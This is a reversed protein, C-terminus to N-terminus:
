NLKRFGDMFYVSNHSWEGLGYVKAGSTVIVSISNAGFMPPVIAERDVTYVHRRDIKPADPYSGKAGEEWARIETETAPKAIAFFLTTVATLLRTKEEAAREADIKTRWLESQLMNLHQEAASPKPTPAPPGSESKPKVSRIAIKIKACSASVADVMDDLADDYISVTVGSLDTPLRFDNERSKPVLVFCRELGLAGIFLGLEFLVNDRVVSYQTGRIIATDDKAFVFVAFDTDKARALLAVITVSSLDFANDWLKVRAEGDLKINVAEAVSLAERSSAVFVRPNDTM